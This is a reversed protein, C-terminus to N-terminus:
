HCFVLDKNKSLLEAIRRKIEAADYQRQSFRSAMAWNQKSTRLNGSTIPNKGIGGAGIHLQV